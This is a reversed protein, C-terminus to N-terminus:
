TSAAEWPESRPVDGTTIGLDRRAAAYFRDRDANIDGHVADWQDTDTRQGRAFREVQWVRRHWTRAAAITDPHGLLLVSEWTATREVNLRALEALADHYAASTEEGRQRLEAARTSTVYVNKVAYGYDAYAQARREDWRSSRERRWRTRESAAGALYSAAAGIVVGVLAPLQQGIGSM